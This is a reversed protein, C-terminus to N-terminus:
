DVDGLGSEAFGDVEFYGEIVNVALFRHAVTLWAHMFERSPACPCTMSPINAFRLGLVCPPAISPVISRLETHLLLQRRAAGASRRLVRVGAPRQSARDGLARLYAGEWSRARLPANRRPAQPTTSVEVM